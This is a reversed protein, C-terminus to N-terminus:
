DVDRLLVHRTTLLDRNMCSRGFVGRMTYHRRTSPNRALVIDTNKEGNQAFGAIIIM